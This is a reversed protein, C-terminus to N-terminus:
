SILLGNEGQEQKWGFYVDRAKTWTGYRVRLTAPTPMGPPDEKYLAQAEQVTIWRGKKRVWGDVARMVEDETYHPNGLGEQKETTPLGALRKYENWGLRRSFLASGPVTEKIEEPQEDRWKQYKKVGFKDGLDKAALLLAMVFDDDTFKEKDVNKRQGASLITQKWLKHDEPTLDSYLIQRIRHVPLGVLSAIETSNKGEYALNVIRIRKEPAVKMSRDYDHSRRPIYNENDLLIEGIRQRSVGFHEGIEALTRGSNYMELMEDTRQSLRITQETM